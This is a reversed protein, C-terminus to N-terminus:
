LVHHIEEAIKEAADPTHRAQAAQSMHARLNADCLQRAIRQGLESRVLYKEAIVEAAGEGGYAHANAMQHDHVAAPFPVLIAAVRCAALEALTGAGSRAVVLDAAAYVAEMEDCFGLVVAHFGTETYAQRVNEVHAEGALHLIQMSPAQVKLAGLGRIMAENLGRAGQSGGLVAVVQRKPHLGLKKRAEEQSMRGL